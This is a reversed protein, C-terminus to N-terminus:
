AVEAEIDYVIFGDGGDRRILVITPPAYMVGNHAIAREVKRGFDTLGEALRRCMLPVDVPGDFQVRLQVPPRTTDV